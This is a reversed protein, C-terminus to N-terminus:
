HHFFRTFNENFDQETPEAKTKINKKGAQQKKTNVKGAGGRLKRSRRNKKNSKYM